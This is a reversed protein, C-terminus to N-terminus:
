PMNMNSPTPWSTHAISGAANTNVLHWLEEAAHPAFPALLKLYINAVNRGLEGRRALKPMEPVFKFFDSVAVNFHYNEIDSTIKEVLQKLSGNIDHKDETINVNTFFNYIRDLLKSVGILGKESWVRDKAVPGLFLLHLRLADAGYKDIIPDPSVANGRSKSMKELKVDVKTNHDGKLVYGGKHKIVEEEDVPRGDVTFLANRVIGHLLIKKFPEEVPSVGMDFLVKNWFRAYLLHSVAHEVGGVYLDVPMWYSAAAEGYPQKFNAPDCFRLYHWSTGAWQPMTEEHQTGSELPLENENVPVYEGGRRELPIPEGWHRQRSFIWDKLKLNVFPEIYASDPYTGDITTHFIDNVCKDTNGVSPSEDAVADVNKAVIRCNIPQTFLLPANTVYVKIPRGTIPNRVEIGTEVVRKNENRAINSMRAASDVLQKVHETASPHVFDFLNAMDTTLEVREIYKLRNLYTEFGFLAKVSPSTDNVEFKIKYGHELGIWKKQAAVISQPWELSDLGEVLRKAYKTIGLLWQPAQKRYVPFGGRASLGNKVEENALVTNLEPCWNVTQTSRYAIGRKYFQLFMWQTWKYYSPESTRLERSWDYAFGMRKIQRKFTQINAETVERVDRKVIEAHREAPLGFSDWGIPCLVRYGRMRKYRSIVDLITYGLLHGVHLGEGSPYPIMCLGYFKPKREVDGYDRGRGEVAKRNKRRLCMTKRGTVNGNQRWNSSISPLVADDRKRPRRKVALASIDCSANKRPDEPNTVFNGAACSNFSNRAVAADILPMTTKRSLM